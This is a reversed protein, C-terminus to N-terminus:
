GTVAIVSIEVRVDKPLGSVEVTERAPYNGQFYSGYVENVEAFYSMNRLFISSKVINKFDIGAEKLVASINKMVQHTEDKLSSNVLTGDTRNIAIQGSIYITNGAKVAQSYPGIPEPAEQSNIIEKM